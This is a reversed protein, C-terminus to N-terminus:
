GDVTIVNYGDAVLGASSPDIIDVNTISGVTDGALEIGTEAGTITSDSIIMGQGPLLESYSGMDAPNDSGRTM